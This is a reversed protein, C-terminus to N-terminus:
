PTKRLRGALAGLKLVNDIRRELFAWTKGHGPSADNLWYLTTSTLVGSLLIRKTYHNYDTATDGAARWIADATAWVMKPLRVGRQPASMFALSKAVAERHPELAELRAKVGAAIKDRVRLRGFDKRAAMRKLMEADAWDSFYLALDLGGRPFLDDPDHAWGDFPVNKLAALLVKTKAAEITKQM